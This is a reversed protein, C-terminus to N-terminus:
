KKIPMARPMIIAYEGDRTREIRAGSIDSWGYDNGTYDCTLGAADYLDAVRVTPYRDLIEGLTILIDEADSRTPVIIDDTIRRTRSTDSYRGSDRRDGDYFRSYSIKSGTSTRNGGGKSGWLFMHTGESIITDIAKKISPVLVDLLIYEKVNKRDEALFIDAFKRVKNTKVKATGKIVKEVKRSEVAQNERQEQKYKHSNNPLNSLDM